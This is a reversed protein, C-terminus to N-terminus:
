RVLPRLDRVPPELDDTVGGAGHRLCELYRLVPTSRSMEEVPTEGVM